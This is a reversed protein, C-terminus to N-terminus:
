VLLHVGVRLSKQNGSDDDRDEKVHDGTFGHRPPGIGHAHADCESRSRERSDPLISVISLHLLPEPTGQFSKAAAPGSLQGGAGHQAYVDNTDEAVVLLERM